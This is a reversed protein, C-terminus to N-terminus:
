IVVVIIVAIVVVIPVIVYVICLNKRAFKDNTRDNSGDLLYM